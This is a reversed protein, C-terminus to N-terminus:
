YGLKAYRPDGDPWQAYLDTVKYLKKNKIVPLSNFRILAILACRDESSTKNIFSRLYNYEKNTNGDLATFDKKVFFANKLDNIDNVGDAADSATQKVEKFKSKDIIKNAELENPVHHITPKGQVWNSTDTYDEIEAKLMKIFSFNKTAPKQFQLIHIAEHKLLYQLLHRMSVDAWQDQVYILNKNQTWAAFSGIVGERVLPNPNDSYPLVKVTNMEGGPYLQKLIKESITKISSKAKPAAPNAQAVRTPPPAPSQNNLYSGSPNQSGSYNSGPNQFGQYNQNNSSDNTAM